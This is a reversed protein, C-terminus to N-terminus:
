PLPIKPLVYKAFLVCRFRLTSKTPCVDKIADAHKAVHTPCDKDPLIKTKCQEPLIHRAFKRSM